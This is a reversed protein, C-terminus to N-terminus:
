GVPLLPLFTVQACSHLTLWLLLSTEQCFVFSWSSSIVFILLFSSCLLTHALLPFQSHFAARRSKPPGLCHGNKGRQHSLSGDKCPCLIFWLCFSQSDSLGLYFLQHAARPLARPYMLGPITDRTGCSPLPLFLFFLVCM